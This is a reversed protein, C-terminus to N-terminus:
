KLFFSSIAMFLSLLAIVFSLISWVALALGAGDKAKCSIYIFFVGIM